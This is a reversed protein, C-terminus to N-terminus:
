PTLLYFIVTKVFITLFQYFCSKHTVIFSWISSGSRTTLIGSGFGAFLDPDSDAASFPLCGLESYALFFFDQRPDQSLNTPTLATTTVTTTAAESRPDLGLTQEMQQYNM